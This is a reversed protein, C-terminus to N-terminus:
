NVSPQSLVMSHIGGGGLFLERAQIGIRKRRPFLQAFIQKAQEDCPDDFRPYILAGNPMYFNLYSGVLRDGALRPLTDKCWDVGDAEEKTIVLPSPLPIKHIRLKRGQADTEKSLIEEAERVIEYQPHAPDDTWSLILEGPRIFCLLNDIHGKGEDMYLGRHLWIVKKIGLYNELTREIQDKSLSPNRGESLLCEETVALTDEGDFSFACGEFVFERLQYSDIGAVECIKQAALNDADWPFYLGELQGGYGNFTWDVGRVKYGNTIFTPGFDRVFADNTTMEIVRVEPCLHNRANEYQDARVCVTLPEFRSIERAIECIVRQAPKAGLRWNDPRQPWVMWSGAHWAYEPVLRFGEAAPLTHLVAM